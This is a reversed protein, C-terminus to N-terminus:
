DHCLSCKIDDNTKHNGSFSFSWEDHCRLCDFSANVHFKSSAKLFDTKHCDYCNNHPKTTRFTIDNEHCEDCDAIKHSGNLRFGSFKHKYDLISWEEVDHCESCNSNLYGKHYDSHCSICSSSVNFNHNKHCVNCDTQAHKGAEFKQNKHDYNVNKFKVDNHCTNCKLDLNNNHINEHCFKCDISKDEFVANKVNKYDPSSGSWKHCERCKLDKHSNVTKFNLKNHDFKGTNKWDTQNHCDLCNKSLQNNHRDEHCDLCTVDKDSIYFKHEKKHCKSCEKDKHAEVLEYKALRTHDFNDAIKFNKQNHCKLCEDSLTNKHVDEHCSQCTSFKLKRNVKHCEFCKLDAHTDVLEYNSVKKHDFPKLDKFSTEKHCLQCDKDKTDFVNQHNSEHCSSCTKKDLKYERTEHCTNCSLTRHVDVLKFGTTDHNFIEPQFFTKDFVSHCAECKNGLKGKHPEDKGHCDICNKKETKFKYESHCKLCTLKTHSGLIDFKDHKFSDNMKKFSNTNHCRECDNDFEKDHKSEHCTHCNTSEVMYTSDSKTHCNNCNVRIHNGTLKYGTEDHNFSGINLNRSDYDIGHHDSHCKFCDEKKDKHYGKNEDIRKKLVKHCALCLDESLTKESTHCLSCSDLTDYASHSKTLKGPSFISSIGLVTLIFIFLIIKKM